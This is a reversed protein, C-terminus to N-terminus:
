FVEADRLRTGAKDKDSLILPAELKPWRIGIDPDNWLITRDNAAIWYETMKYLVDVNDSLALLGHAFGPPIWVMRDERHSLTFGVWMGFTKSSRRLDVAVDFIEGHLVQILKGQPRAVQYHLGRLVNKVSRSRNDQVFEVDIGTADRFTRRNHSEYVAGRADPFVRPELILVEPIEAPTVKV